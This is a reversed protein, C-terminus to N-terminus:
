GTAQSEPKSRAWYQSLGAIVLYVGLIVAYAGFAGVFVVSATLSRHVGDPGTFHQVFDVPILLAVIAVAASLAGAFIWDKRALHNKEILGVTLELIGTVGFVACGLFLLEATGGERWYLALLGGAVLIAGQVAFLRPSTGVFKALGVGTLLVLGSAIGFAAVVTFGIVPSHDALFTVVLGVILSVSARSLTVAWYGLRPANM